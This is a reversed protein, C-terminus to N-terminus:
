RIRLGATQCGCLNYLTIKWCSDAGAGSLGCIWLVTLVILVTQRHWIYRHMYRQIGPWISIYIYINPPEGAVPLWWSICCNRLPFQKLVQRRRGVRRFLHVNRPYTHHCTYIWMHTHRTQDPSRTRCTRRKPVYKLPLNFEMRNSEHSSEDRRWENLKAVKRAWFAFSVCSCKSLKDAQSLQLQGPSGSKPNTVGFFTTARPKVSKQFKNGVSISDFRLVFTEQTHPDPLTIGM